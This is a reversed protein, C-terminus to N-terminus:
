TRKHFVSKKEPHRRGRLQRGETGKRKPLRGTRRGKGSNTKGGEEWGFCLFRSALPLLHSFGGLMSLTKTYDGVFYGRKKSEDGM